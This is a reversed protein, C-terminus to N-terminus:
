DNGGLREALWDLLRYLGLAEAIAVVIVLLAVRLILAAEALTLDNENNM